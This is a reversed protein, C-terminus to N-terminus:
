TYKHRDSSCWEIRRDLQDPRCFVCSLASFFVVLRILHLALSISAALFRTHPVSQHSAPVVADEAVATLTACHERKM